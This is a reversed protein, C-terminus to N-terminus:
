LMAKVVPSLLETEIFYGFNLHRDLTVTEAIGCSILSEVGGLVNTGELMLKYNNEKLIIARVVEKGEFQRKYVENRM